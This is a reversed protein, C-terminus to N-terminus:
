SATLSLLFLMVALLDASGGPSLNRSICREDLARLGDPSVDALLDKAERQLWELGKRGGRHLVTTDDVEAMLALLACLAAEEHSRTQRANRYAPLAVELVSPFGDEAEGRVGRGGYAACALLGHTDRGTLERSIGSATEAAARCVSQAALGQGRALLRGASACLLGMSFLAGKHTNVGGTAAYMAREGELGIPRLHSLTEGAPLAALEMGIQALRAFCPELAAASRLFTECDMDRHAGSNARDVLGPKPTLLVEEELARRALRAVEAATM